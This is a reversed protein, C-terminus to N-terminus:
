AERRPVAGFPGDPPPVREGRLWPTLDRGLWSSLRRVDDEFAAVLRGRVEPSLPEPQRENVAAYARRLLGEPLRDRLGSVLRSGRLALEVRPSRVARGRNHRADPVAPDRRSVGIHAQVDHLVGVPDRALDDTLYIRLQEVPFTDLFPALADAYRGTQVYRVMGSWDAEIREPEADLAASLDGLPELGLRRAHEFASRARSIPDRLVAILRVEPVVERMNAAAHPTQLYGSSAEGRAVAAGAGEFLREYDERRNVIQWAADAARPGAMEYERGYWAFFHPEKVRSMFVEPHDALHEYLTTTGSKQAGIILFTPLM